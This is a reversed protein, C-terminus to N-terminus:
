GFAVSFDIARPRRKRNLPATPLGINDEDEPKPPPYAGPYIPKVTNEMPKSNPM